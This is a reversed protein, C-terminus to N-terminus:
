YGNKNITVINFDTNVMHQATGIVHDIKVGENGFQEIASPKVPQSIKSPLLMELLSASRSCM